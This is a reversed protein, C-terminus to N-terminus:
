GTRSRFWGSEIRCIWENDLGVAGNKDLNIVRLVTFGTIGQSWERFQFLARFM